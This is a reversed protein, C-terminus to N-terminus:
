QSLAWYYANIGLEAGVEEGGWGQRLSWRGGWEPGWM